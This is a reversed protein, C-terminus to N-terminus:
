PNELAHLERDKHDDEGIEALVESYDRHASEFLENFDTKFAKAIEKENTIWGSNTAIANRRNHRRQILTSVHFFKSNKDGNKLWLERSKQRNISKMRNM